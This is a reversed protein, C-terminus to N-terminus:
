KFLRIQTVGSASYSNFLDTANCAPDMIGVNTSTVSDIAVWHAGNKVSVLMQFDADYYQKITALKDAASGSLTIKKHYDLGHIVQGVLRWCLNNDAFAGVNKLRQLLVGPNFGSTVSEFGGQMAIMAVSTVASGHSRMMESGIYANAWRDDMQKWRIWNKSEMLIAADRNNSVEKVQVTGELTGTRGDITKMEVRIGFVGRQKFRVPKLFYGSSDYVSELKWNTSGLERIYLKCHDTDSDLQFYVPIGAVPDALTPFAASNLNGSIDTLNFSVDIRAAQAPTVSTFFILAVLILSVLNKKM